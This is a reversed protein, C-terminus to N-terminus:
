PSEGQALLTKRAALLTGPPPKEEFYARIGAMIAEALGQQHRETRLKREEAPNTIFATEILMSPVDPSKLVVFAAQQVTAKHVKGVRRLSTLVSDAVEMSAELTVTQSLDLLVSKLLDEKDVLNVGGVRDAANERDALWRAAESSAGRPSLIYVSSGRAQPSRFADAHISVFLDADHRRAIQMRRRLGVYYDGSRIMVPRMGYEREVLDKLKKAIALVVDKEYTGYVGRAGPDDGGHGADIAIVIERERRQAKKASRVVKPIAQSGQAAVDHLDIVLRHGYQSNPHLVFSKPRVKGKLDLVIRLDKGNRIGSRVNRLQRHDDGPRPLESMLQADRLDIVLRDPDGLSFLSHEVPSSVDFVLRTHDPATWMRIGQVLSAVAVGHGCLLCVLTCSLALWRQAAASQFWFGGM